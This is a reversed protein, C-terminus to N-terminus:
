AEIHGVVLDDFLKGCPIEDDGPINWQRRRNLFATQCEIGTALEIGGVSVSVAQGHPVEHIGQPAAAHNSAARLRQFLPIPMGERTLQVLYQGPQHSIGSAADRSDATQRRRFARAAAGPKRQYHGYRIPSVQNEAQPGHAAM